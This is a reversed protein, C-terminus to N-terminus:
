YALTGKITNIFCYAKEKAILSKVTESFNQPLMGATLEGGCVKRLDINIRSNLKSQQTVSLAYFIYDPDSAFMQTYNLLRQNFCEVPSLKMQRDVKYGFYGQPFLCLFSVNDGRM